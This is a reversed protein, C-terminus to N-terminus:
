ASLMRIHASADNGSPQARHRRAALYAGREARLRDPGLATYYRTTARKGFIRNARDWGHHIFVQEFEVPIPEAIKTSQSKRM